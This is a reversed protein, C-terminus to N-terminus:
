GRIPTWWQAPNFLPFQRGARQRYYLLVALACRQIDSFPDTRKCQRVVVFAYCCPLCDHGNQVLHRLRCLLVTSRQVGCALEAGGERVAPFDWSRGAPGSWIQGNVDTVTFTREHLFCGFRYTWSSM